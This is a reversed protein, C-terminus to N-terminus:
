EPGMEVWECVCMNWTFGWVFGEQNFEKSGDNVCSDEYNCLFLKQKENQQMAKPNHKMAWRILTLVHQFKM